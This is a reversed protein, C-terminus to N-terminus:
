QALLWRRPGYRDIGTTGARRSLVRRLGQRGISAILGKEQYFRLTSAPVCSRLAVEAIEM